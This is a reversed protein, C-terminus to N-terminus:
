GFIDLPPPLGANASAKAESGDAAASIGPKVAAESAAASTAHAVSHPDPGAAAAAAEMAPSAAARAATDMITKAFTGCLSSTAHQELFLAPMKAGTVIKAALAVACVAMEKPSMTVCCETFFADTLLSLAAASVRASPDSARSLSGHMWAPHKQALSHVTRTVWGFPLHVAVDFSLTLLLIHEKEIVGRRLCESRQPLM